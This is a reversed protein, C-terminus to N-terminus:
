YIIVINTNVNTDFGLWSSVPNVIPEVGLPPFSAGAPSELPLDMM